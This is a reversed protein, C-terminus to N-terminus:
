DELYNMSIHRNTKNYLLVNLWLYYFPAFFGAAMLPFEFFLFVGGIIPAESARIMRFTNAMDKSQYVFIGNEHVKPPSYYDSKVEAISSDM